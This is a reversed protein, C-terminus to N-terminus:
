DKNTKLFAKFENVLKMFIQLFFDQGINIKPFHLIIIQAVKRARVCYNVFKYFYNKDFSKSKM